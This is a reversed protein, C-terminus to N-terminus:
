DPSLPLPKELYVSKGAAFARMAVPAHLANPLCILVARVSADALLADMESYTRAQPALQQAALLAQPDREALAVVRAGPLDRLVRLHVDRAIQGCGIVGLSLSM